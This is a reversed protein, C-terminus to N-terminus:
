NELLDGLVKVISEETDKLKKGIFFVGKKKIIISDGHKLTRLIDKIYELTVTTHEYKTQPLKKELKSSLSEDNLQIISNVDNRAKHTMWHVPTDRNPTHLGIALIINKVPDYDVIELFDKRTIHNFDTNIDNIIMRKGFSLSISIQTEKRLFNNEM